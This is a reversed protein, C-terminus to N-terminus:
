RARGSFLPCANRDRPGSFMRSKPLSIGPVDRYLFLLAYFAQNQTSASVKGEVALYTLFESIEAVGMENPHRKDHFLIFRKIFNRYVDETRHSLHRVRCVARVQDLLKLKQQM